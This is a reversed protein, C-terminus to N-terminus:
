RQQPALVGRLGFAFQLEHTARAFGRISLIQLVVAKVQLTLFEANISFFWKVKKRGVQVDLLFITLVICLADVGGNSFAFHGKQNTDDAAHTVIDRRPRLLEPKLKPQRVEDSSREYQLIM